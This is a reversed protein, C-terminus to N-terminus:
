CTNLVRLNIIESIKMSDEFNHFKGLLVCCYTTGHSNPTTETQVLAWCREVVDCQRISACIVTRLNTWLFPICSFSDWVVFLSFPIYFPFPFSDLKLLFFWLQSTHRTRKTGQCM